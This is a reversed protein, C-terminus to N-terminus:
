GPCSPLALLMKREVAKIDLGEKAVGPRLGYDAAMQTIREGPVEKHGSVDVFWIRATLLQLLVFFLAAGAVLMKRRTVRKVAFPFGAHGAVEV